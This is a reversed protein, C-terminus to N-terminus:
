VQNLTKLWAPSYNVEIQDIERALKFDLPTLGAAAYTYIKVEVNKYSTIHLDPHHNMDAREAIDGAANLFSMASKFNRCTFCSSISKKDESLLWFGPKLTKMEADITEADVVPDYVKATACGSLSCGDEAVIVKQSPVSM